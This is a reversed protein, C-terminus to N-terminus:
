SNEKPKYLNLSDVEIGQKQCENYIQVNLTTLTKVSALFMGSISEFLKGQAEWEMVLQKLKDDM